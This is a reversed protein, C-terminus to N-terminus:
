RLKYVRLQLVELNRDEPPRWLDNIFEVRVEYVGKEVEAEFKLTGWGEGGLQREGISRDGISLRVIPYEGAAQTGRATVEFGYRGSTAFEVPCSIYGNTSLRAVRGRRSFLKLGPQPEMAAGDIVVGGKMGEFEVGLNTLLISLYRSAKDSIRTRGDWRVQDIAISGAGMRMVVLAPPNLLEEVKLEGKPALAIKDVFLNRDEGREPAYADNTFAVTLRHKGEEAKFSAYYVDMEEHTLMVGAAREGDLYITVEPYVGGVPTGGAFIGVAYAGSRALDVETSISANTFMYVGNERLTAGRESDIRMEEAEIVLCEELPPLPEAVVYDVISPDLPTRRRWDGIHPGLWYLEQNSLGAILEGKREIVVPVAKSKQLSIRTPLLDSILKLSEPTLAHLVLTGGDRVFREMDEIKGELGKLEEGDVLLTRYLHPSPVYSLKEYRAGVRELDPILREGMVGLASREGEEAVSEAAYRILNVLFRGAVPESELKEGILLQSLIYKGKGELVELVCAHILGGRGGTDVLPRFGGGVPKLLTKRAVLNDGRWFKFDDEEIGEFLRGVEARKFAITCGYDELSAPLMDPPYSDQELVILVGGGRVFRRLKEGPASEEGVRPIRPTPFSDLTHPGILCIGAKGEAEWPEPIRVVEFGAEELFRSIKDGREYVAVRIGEGIREPKRPFLKYRKVDLFRTEGNEEVKLTLKLRRFPGKHDYGPMHLTIRTVVKDAPGMRFRKRGEDVVRRGDSLTWRLTLEASRFTDNYLYVTREVEEGEFFRSDYEKIFAANPEYAYKVADYQVNPFRGTELLTWPCMGAVDLARYGEIQMRWAMAKAKARGARYDRYAEDGIFLTYPDPTQAFSWLFEGIYLPKERMWKWERRPYGSVRVRRELWYCTNPYLNWEPFEHPYHLNIVDAVGGPDEDGDFMIPRTPDLSKLFRGLEALREECDPARDGGTHLIENEVSYMVVSPHNKDRKVIGALHKKANEWFRPDSLAYQRAFCWIASEEILLMGEEDAAEYWWKPWLNAHLRMAVCNASKIARYLNIADEKTSNAPPHGATALFKIRKGNLVFYIGDIWFERFGFREERADVVRGDQMLEVRMLYLHPSLHSWLKPNRWSKIMVKKAASGAKVTGLDGELRLVEENGDMVRCVIAATQDRESDNRVTVEVEIEWRRVFTKIFVDEVYLEYRLSLYVDQWIGVDSVRSGVPALIIDSYDEFMTRGSKYPVEEKLVGRVDQVRVALLNRGGRKVLDTVDFEFPEWGGFHEGVKRGNLYVTSVYKVGDFCLYLRHRPPILPVIFERKYWIFKPPADRVTSPVQVTRWEADEGPLTPSDSYCIEWEGNLSFRQDGAVLPAIIAMLALGFMFGKM